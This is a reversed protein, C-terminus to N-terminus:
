SFRNQYSHKVETSFKLIIPVFRFYLIGTPCSETGFETKLIKLKLPPFSRHSADREKKDDKKRHKKCLM